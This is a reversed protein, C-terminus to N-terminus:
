KKDPKKPDIIFKDEEKLVINNMAELIFVKNDLQALTPIGM